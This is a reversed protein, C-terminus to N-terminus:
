DFMLLFLHTLLGAHYIKHYELVYSINVRNMNKPTWTFVNNEFTAGDPLDTKVVVTVVDGDQDFTNVNLIGTEGVTVNFV